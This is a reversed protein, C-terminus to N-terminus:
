SPTGLGAAITATSPYRNNEKQNGVTTPSANTGNSPARPSCVPVGYRGPAPCTRGKRSFCLWHFCLTRIHHLTLSAAQYGAAPVRIIFPVLKKTLHRDQILPCQSRNGPAKGM